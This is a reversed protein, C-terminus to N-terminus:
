RETDSIASSTQLRSNHGAHWAGCDRCRYINLQPLGPDNAARAEAQLSRLALLADSRSYRQKGKAGCIGRNRLDPRKM